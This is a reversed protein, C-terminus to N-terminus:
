VRGERNRDRKKGIGVGEGMVGEEKRGSERGVEGEWGVCESDGCLQLTSLTTNLRLTKALVRGGGEGLDKIVQWCM